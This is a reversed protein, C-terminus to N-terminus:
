PTASPAVPPPAISPLAKPRPEPITALDKPTLRKLKLGRRQLQALVGDKGAMHGAGVAVFFSREPAAAIKGAIREAMRGSRESILLRYLKRELKSGQQMGKLAERLLRVEDGALYAAILEEGPSTGAARAKDMEDLTESLLQNQEEVTLGDFAASQEAATEIGGVEKGARGGALYLQEDLATGEAM